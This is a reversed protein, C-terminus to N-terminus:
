ESGEAWKQCYCIARGRDHSAGRQPLSLSLSPVVVVFMGVLGAARRPPPSDVHVGGAVVESGFPALPQQYPSPPSLTLFDLDGGGGGGGGGCMGATPPPPTPSDNLADENRKQFDEGTEEKGGEEM